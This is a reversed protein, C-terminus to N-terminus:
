RVEAPFGISVEFMKQLGAVKTNDDAFEDLTLFSM